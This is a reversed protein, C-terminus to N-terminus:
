DVESSRGMYGAYEKNIWFDQLTAQLVQLVFVGSLSVSQKVLRQVTRLMYMPGSHHGTTTHWCNVTKITFGGTKQAESWIRNDIM